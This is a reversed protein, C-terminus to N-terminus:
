LISGTTCCARAEREQGHDPLSNIISATIFLLLHYCEEVHRQDAQSTNFATDDRARLVPLPGRVNCDLMMEDDHFMYLRM